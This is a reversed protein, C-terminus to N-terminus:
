QARCVGLVLVHQGGLLRLLKEAVVVDIPLLAIGFYQGSDHSALSTLTGVKATSQIACPLHEICEDLADGEVTVQYLKKKIGGRWHMRSTVEQGVYCGKDFSVGNREILNANLPHIKEDWDVGFTPVGKVIRAAIIAQEDTNATLMTPLNTAAAMVWVGDDAAEPWRMVVVDNSQAVALMNHGPVPLMAAHLFADVGGGQLSKVKFSSVVGIRLQYGLSFRRLREVLAVALAAPCVMMVEDGSTPFLYFDTIAKAQHNLIVAYIAQEANMLKVDQTIQGQLYTLINEGSAKVVAYDDRDCILTQQENKM